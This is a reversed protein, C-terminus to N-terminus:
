PNRLMLTKYPYLTRFGLREYLKLAPANKEDVQLFAHGAGVAQAWAMLSTVIARGCGTGRKDADVMICGLEAWDGDIAGLGFACPQGDMVLTAFRHPVQIRSVIAHLKEPFRKAGSQSRCVGNLWPEDAKEGLLVNTASPQQILDAIQTLSDAVTVYGRGNLLELMQPAALPTIRVTSPLGAERYHVEIDELQTSTLTAGIQLASASNARGSYGGGLRVAWGDVMMTSFSPWVKLLSNELQCTLALSDDTM